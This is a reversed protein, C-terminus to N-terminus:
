LGELDPEESGCECDFCSIPVFVKVVGGVVRHTGLKRDGKRM